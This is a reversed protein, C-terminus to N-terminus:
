FFISRTARLAQRRADGFFSGRFLIGKVRQVRGRYTFFSGPTHKMSMKLPPISNRGPSRRRSSERCHLLVSRRYGSGQWVRYDRYVAKERSAKIDSVRGVGQVRLDWTAAVRVSARDRRLRASTRPHISLRGRVTYDRFVVFHRSNSSDRIEFEGNSHRRSARGARQFYCTYRCVIIALAHPSASFM